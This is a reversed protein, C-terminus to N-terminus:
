LYEPTSTDQCVSQPRAYPGPVGARSHVSPHVSPCVSPRAPHNSQNISQHTHAHYLGNTLEDPELESSYVM